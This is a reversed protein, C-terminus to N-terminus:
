TAEIRQKALEVYESVYDIGIFRRKLKKCAIGTTGSGMFMDLVTEDEYSYYKICKMPLELPFPAPHNVSTEPNFEWVNTMDYEGSVFSHNKLTKDILFSAKKKFVLIYETIINPKYAVPKRHQFFGGNRNKASGNPKKWIIDELFEFGIIEMMPVFYFPIPIRYSQESRKLRAVLVPSVNIICMRSPKLVREGEIFCQKMIDLYKDITEYESYDRANFYPPSTLILDVSNDPITPLIDLCDGRLMVFADLPNFGSNAKKTQQTDLTLQDKM